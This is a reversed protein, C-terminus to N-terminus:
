AANVPPTDALADGIERVASRAARTVGALTASAVGTWDGNGVLWLRPERVSRGDRVTIRGDPDTPSRNGDWWVVGDPEFYRFPRVSRLASRHRVERVPPVLVIDGLGGGPPGPDRGEQQARVRETRPTTM